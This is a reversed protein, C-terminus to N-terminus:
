HLRELGHHDRWVLKQELLIYLERRVTPANRKLRKAIEAATKDPNVMVERLIADRILGM